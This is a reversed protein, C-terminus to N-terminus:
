RIKKLVYVSFTQPIGQVSIRASHAAWLIWPSERALAMREAVGRWRRESSIRDRM